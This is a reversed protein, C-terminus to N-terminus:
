DVNDLVTINVPDVSMQSGGTMSLPKSQDFRVLPDWRDNVGKVLDM